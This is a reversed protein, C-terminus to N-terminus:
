ICNCNCSLVKQVAVPRAGGIENEAAGADKPVIKTVKAAAFNEFKLYLILIILIIIIIIKSIFLEM